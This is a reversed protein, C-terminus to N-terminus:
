PHGPTHGPSSPAQPPSNGEGAGERAADIHPEVAHPSRGLGRPEPAFGMGQPPAAYRHRPFPRPPSTGIHPEAAHDVPCGTPSPGFPADAGYRHATVSGPMVVPLPVAGAGGSAVGGASALAAALGAASGGAAALGDAM